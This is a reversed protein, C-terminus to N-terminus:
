NAWCDKSPYWPQRGKVSMLWAAYRINERPKYIDLGMKRSQKGHHYTNVQMLGIDRGVSAEGNKANKYYRSECWMVEIFQDYDVGYEQTMEWIHRDLEGGVDTKLEITEIDKQSSTGHKALYESRVYTVTNDANVWMAAVNLWAIVGAVITLASILKKWYERRAKRKHARKM